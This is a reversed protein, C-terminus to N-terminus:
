APRSSGQYCPSTATPQVIAPKRVPQPQCTRPSALWLWRRLRSSLGFEVPCHAPYRGPLTVQRVLPVSFIGGAVNRTSRRRPTTACLSSAGGSMWPAGPLSPTTQAAPSGPAYSTLTFLHPLLAGRRRYRRHCAFGRVSCSWIPHRLRLPALREARRVARGLGGPLDSSGALLGPGLPIITVGHRQAVALDSPAFASLIRSVPRSRRKEVGWGEWPM